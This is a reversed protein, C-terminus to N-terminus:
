ELLIIFMGFNPINCDVLVRSFRCTLRQAAFTPDLVLAYSSPNPMVAPHNVRSWTIPKESWNIYKPVPPVTTYVERWNQRQIHKDDGESTFVIFAGDQHPYDDHLRGDNRPPPPPAPAPGPAPAHPTALQVQPLWCDREKRCDSHLAASEFPIPLPSQGLTCREPRTLCKSSASSPSGTM